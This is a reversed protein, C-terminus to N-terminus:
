TFDYVVLSERGAKSEKLVIVMEDDFGVWNRRDDWPREVQEEATGASPSSRGEKGPGPRIEISKGGSKGELEWVRVEDGRTSVSVAKGRSTIEADAIGSTHGWLRMGRSISLADANSTCLYLVLTNDPLTVLLYPHSYCLASPFQSNQEASTEPLRQQRGDLSPLQPRRPRRTPAELPPAHALRSSFVQITPKPSDTSFGLHLDQIGVTWGDRTAVTFAISAISSVGMKRVALALPGQSSHSKLSTILSLGQNPVLAPKSTQRRELGAAGKSSEIQYLSVVVDESATMLYPASFALETLRKAASPRPHQYQSALTGGDPRFVWLSFAGDDFGVAIGLEGAILHQDDVALCTPKRPSLEAVALPRKTKLHWIRLGFSADATVAMGDVVKALTDGSPVRGRRWTGVDLEEVACKGQSWNHRLRYQRKWDVTEGRAEGRAQSKQLDVGGHRMVTRTCVGLSQLPRPHFGPIRLVRPLVFRTYYLERWIQSDSSLRHLRRCTRSVRHVLDPLPVFSLIRVLLEDSLCAFVDGDRRSATHSDSNARRKKAPRIHPSHDRKRVGSSSPMTSSGLSSPTFPPDLQDANPLNSGQIKPVVRHV